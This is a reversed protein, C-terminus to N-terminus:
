IVKKNKKHFFNKSLMGTNVAWLFNDLLFYICATLRSLVMMNALLKDFKKKEALIQTLKYFEDVFRLFKFIKKNKSMTEEIKGSMLKKRKNMALFKIRLEPINSHIACYYKLKALYQIVGCIKKRGKSSSMIKSLTKAIEIFIKSTLNTTQFITNKSVTILEERSLSKFSLTRAIM